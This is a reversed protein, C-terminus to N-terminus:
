IVTKRMALGIPIDMYSTILYTVPSWTHTFRHLGTHHVKRMGTPDAVSHM